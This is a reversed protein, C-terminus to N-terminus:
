EVRRAYRFYKKLEDQSMGALIADDIKDPISVIRAAPGIEAAMKEAKKDGNHDPDLVIWARGCQSVHEVVGAWSLSGPVALVSVDSRLGGYIKTVMAKIAGECIVCEDQIPLSPEATYWAAGIGSEFRYKDGPDPPNTLRYQMTVPQM